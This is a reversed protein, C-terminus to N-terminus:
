KRKKNKSIILFILAIFGGIVLIAITKGMFTSPNEKQIPISISLYNKKGSSQLYAESIGEVLYSLGFTTKLKAENSKLDTDDVNSSLYVWNPITRKLSFQLDDFSKDDTQFIIVQTAGAAQVYIQQSPAIPVNIGDKFIISKKDITGIKSVTFQDNVVMYNAPSTIYNETVPLNTLDLAVAMQFSAGNRDKIYEVGKVQKNVIMHKIPKFTGQNLTATLVSYHDTKFDKETLVYENKYGKYSKFSPGIKETFNLMAPQNGIVAMYYPRVTDLTTPKDNFDYYYGNFESEFQYINTTLKQNGKSATLFVDRTLAKQKGLLATTKTGKISYIFDSLLISVTNENTTEIIQGFIDNLNSYATYGIKISSPSLKDAFNIIDGAIPSKHIENNIFFIEMNSEGYQYKLDVLLNRLADKFQTSEKVYGNMSGSNEIYLKIKLKKIPVVKAEQNPEVAVTDLKSITNDINETRSNRECSIFSNLSIFLIFTRLLINKM